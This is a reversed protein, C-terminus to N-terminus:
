CGAKDNGSGRLDQAAYGRQQCTASLHGPEGCKFCLVESGRPRGGRRDGAGPNQRGDQSQALPNSGTSGSGSSQSQTRRAAAYSELHNLFEQWKMESNLMLLGNMYQLTSPAVTSLTQSILAKTTDVEQQNSLQGESTKLYGLYHGRLRAGFEQFTEKQQKKATQYLQRHALFNMEFRAIAKTRIDAYDQSGGAVEHAIFAALTPSAAGFLCQLKAQDSTHNAVTLFADLRTFFDQTTEDKGQKNLDPLKPHHVHQGPPPATAGASSQPLALCQWPQIGV